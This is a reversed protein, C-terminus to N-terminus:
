IVKQMDRISKNVEMWSMRKTGSGLEMALKSAKEAKKIFNLDSGPRGTNLTSTMKKKIDALEKHVANIDKKFVDKDSPQDPEPSEPEEKGKEGPIDSAAEEKEVTKEEEKPTEEEEEEQKEEMEEPKVEDEQKETEEKAEEEEEEDQKELAALRKSNAEVGKSISELKDMIKDSKMNEGKNIKSDMTKNVTFKNIVNDLKSNLEDLFAETSVFQPNTKTLQAQCVAYAAEEKTQSPDRPKFDPDEMLAAVCRDLEAPKDVMGSGDARGKGPGEGRGYPGTGDPKHGGPGTAKNSKAIVSVAENLALPNCPDFVSATEFQHFGHLVKADSNTVNDKQYSESTNFGGISSGTRKGSQIEGWVQDDFENHNFIKNLHLVGLTKSMPHELVKWALTQGIVRNSHEDTIPANREMLVDQQKIVDEVPILEGAKDKMEVTAWSCFIRDKAEEVATKIIDLNDNDEFIKILEDESLTRKQDQKTVFLVKVM